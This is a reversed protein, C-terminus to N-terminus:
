SEQCTREEAGTLQGAAGHSTAEENVEGDGAQQMVDQSAEEAGKSRKDSGARSCMVFSQRAGPITLAGTHVRESRAAARRAIPTINEGASMHQENVKKKGETIAQRKDMTHSQQLPHHSLKYAWVRREAEKINLPGRDRELFQLLSAAINKRQIKAFEDQTGFCCVKDLIQTISHIKESINLPSDLELVFSIENKRKKHDVDKFM